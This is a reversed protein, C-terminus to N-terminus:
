WYAETPCQFSDDYETRAHQHEGLLVANREAAVTVTFSSVHLFISFFYIVQMLDM